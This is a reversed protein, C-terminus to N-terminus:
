DFYDFVTQFITIKDTMEINTVYALLSSKAIAEVSKGM